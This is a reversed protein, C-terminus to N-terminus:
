TSFIDRKLEAYVATGPKILPALTNRGFAAADNGSQPIQLLRKVKEHISGTTKKIDDALNGRAVSDAVAQTKIALVQPLDASKGLSDCLATLVEDDWLYSELHRRSLVTIGKSKLDAVDADAHDDRDILRKVRMGAAIKPLAAALGLFDGEVEKSNGAAVFTVDPFEDAFVTTYIRADHEANKGPTPGAPNGECIVVVSPAVLSALDDLAVHLVDAWFARTPKTPEIVATQDFDQNGFDLFAVCTPDADYLERAKRMMGISHSAIWLQSEGPVLDLLEKLLAGQLRTNMHTEPEDICYIADAYSKRKVVIDLMLDFSAKEGGSLSRYEFNKASGKDFRFTGSNLPNGIGVFMLDPFLRNMPDRTEGLLRDRYETFTTAGPENVFVDEMAQSALRTYNVSVTADTEILKNLVVTDLIDNQRSLSTHSFEPDNRYATRVYFTGRGLPMGSHTTVAIKNEVAAEPNDPRNYYRIDGSWGYSSDMRHRLLMADFLSSKGSGNPGALVVLKASRPINKIELDVFRRFGNLRISSIRM